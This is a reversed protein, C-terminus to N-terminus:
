SAIGFNSYHLHSFHFVSANYHSVFRVFFVSFTHIGLTKNVILKNKNRM